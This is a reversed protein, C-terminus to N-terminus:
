INAQEPCRGFGICALLKSYTCDSTGEESAIADNERACQRHAASADTLAQLGPNEFCDYKYQLQANTKGHKRTFHSSRFMGNDGCVDCAFWEEFEEGPDHEEDQGCFRHM